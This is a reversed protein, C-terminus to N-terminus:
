NGRGHLMGPVKVDTVYDFKGIVKARVHFRLQSRAPLQINAPPFNCYAPVDARSTNSLSVLALGSFAMVKLM